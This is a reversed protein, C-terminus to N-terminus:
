RTRSSVEPVAGPRDDHGVSSTCVDNAGMLVTVYQVGTGVLKLQRDLDAMKAGTRAVNAATM